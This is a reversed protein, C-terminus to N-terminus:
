NFIYFCVFDTSYEGRGTTKYMLFEWFAFIYKCREECSSIFTRARGRRVSLWLLRLHFWCYRRPQVDFWGAIILTTNSVDYLTM